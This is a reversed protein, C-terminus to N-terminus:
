RIDSDDSCLPKAPKYKDTIISYKINKSEIDFRIFKYSQSNELMPLYALWATSSLEILEIAGVNSFFDLEESIEVEAIIKGSM